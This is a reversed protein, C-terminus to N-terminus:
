ATVDQYNASGGISFGTFEGSLFKAAIAPDDVRVGVMVGTCQLADLIGFALAQETMMPFAYIVQGLTQEEHMVDMSRSNLMFDRWGLETVDEPYHENDTDWYDALNGSADRVKCISGWGYVLKGADLVKVVKCDM